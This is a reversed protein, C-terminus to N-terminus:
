CECWLAILFGCSELREQPKETYKIKQIIEMKTVVDRTLYKFVIDAKDEEFHQDKFQAQRLMRKSPPGKYDM